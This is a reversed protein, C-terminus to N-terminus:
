NNIVFFEKMVKMMDNDVLMIWCFDGILKEVNILDIGDNEISVM